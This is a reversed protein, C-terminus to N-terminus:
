NGKSAANRKLTLELSEGDRTLRVTDPLIADVLCGDITDGLHYLRGNIIALRKPGIIMVSGLTFHNMITPPQPTTAADQQAADVSAALEVMSASAGPTAQPQAVEFPNVFLAGGQREAVYTDLRHALAEVGEVTLTPASLDGGPTADATAPTLAAAPNAPATAAPDSTVVAGADKTGKSGLFQYAVVLGGVVMLILLVVVKKTDGLGSTKKAAPFDGADTDINAM